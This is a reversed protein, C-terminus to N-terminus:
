LDYGSVAVLLADIHGELRKNAEIINTALEATETSDYMVGLAYAANEIAKQEEQIYELIDITRM